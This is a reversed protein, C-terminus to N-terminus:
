KEHPNNNNRCCVVEKCYINQGPEYKLDVHPDNIQLLKFTSEATPIPKVKDPKDSLIHEITKKVNIKKIGKKCLLLRPCVKKPDLLKQQLKELIVSIQLPLVSECVAPEQIKLHECLFIGLNSVASTLKQISASKLKTFLSECDRCLASQDLTIDGQIIDLHHYLEFQNM